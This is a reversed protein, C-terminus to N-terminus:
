SFSSAAPKLSTCCIIVFLDLCTLNYATGCECLLGSVSKYAAEDSARASEALRMLGSSRHTQSM